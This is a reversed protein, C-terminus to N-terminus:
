LYNGDFSLRFTIKLSNLPDIYKSYVEINKETDSSSIDSTDIIAVFGWM